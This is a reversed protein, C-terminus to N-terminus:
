RAALQARARALDEPTDLDVRVIPDDFTIRRPPHAELIARLGLTAETAGALEPLLAGAVVVPHGGHGQYEPQVAEDSARALEELLRLVVAPRTPQDVNQVIVADPREHRALLARAGASLSTARGQPWQPNFICNRSFGGLSRRIPQAHAGLVITVDHIGADRLTRVEAALLPEGDWDLLAKPEGMRRSAGAALILAAVTM